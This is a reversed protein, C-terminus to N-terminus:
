VVLGELGNMIQAKLRCRWQEESTLRRWQSVRELPMCCPHGHYDRLVMTVLSELSAINDCSMLPVGATSWPWTGCGMM